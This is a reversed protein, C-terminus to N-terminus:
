LSLWVGNHLHPAPVGGDGPLVVHGLNGTLAVLRNQGGAPVEVIDAVTLVPSLVVLAFRLVKCTFTILREQKFTYYKLNMIDM